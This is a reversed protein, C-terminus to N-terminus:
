DKRRCCSAKFGRPYLEMAAQWAQDVSAHAYHKEGVSKANGGGAPKWDGMMDAAEPSFGLEHRLVERGSHRAWHADVAAPAVGERALEARAIETVEAVKLPHKTPLGNADIRCWVLAMPATDGGAALWAQKFETVCRAPCIAALGKPLHPFVRVRAELTAKGTKCLTAKFAMGREDMVLDGHRMGKESGMETGRTWTGSAGALIARAQLARLSGERQLRECARLLAATPVAVSRRPLSPHTKQLQSILANLRIGEERTVSWAGMASAAVRLNSLHDGLTHSKVPRPEKFVSWSLYVGASAKTIPLVPPLGKQACCLAYQSMASVRQKSLQAVQMREEVARMHAGMGMAAMMVRVEDREASAGQGRTVAMAHGLRELPGQLRDRLSSLHTVAPNARKVKRPPGMPRAKARRVAPAVLKGNERDASANGTSRRPPAAAWGAATCSWTSSQLAASGLPARPEVAWEAAVCSWRAMSSSLTGVAWLLM